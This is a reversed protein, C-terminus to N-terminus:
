SVPVLLTLVRARDPSGMHLCVPCAPVLSIIKFM